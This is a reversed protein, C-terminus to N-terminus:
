ENRLVVAPEVAVARLAPVSCAALAIALLVTTVSAFTMVDGSEVGFLLSSLLRAVLLAAVLGIGVGAAVVIMGQGVILGVVRRPRGGLALRISIDRAHQQVYYAMVGYIGVLSLLLAVAAFGAVLISLSRPQELARGVLDDITAVDSFPLAPDLDHVTQRVAPLVTAPDGTTRVVLYRFRAVGEDVPTVGRGPIPRYVTGDDPSDLGAYKVTKVVGVVTTWPCSTCGGEKLRKGVASSNPFFRRAWAEDVVISELSPRNGDENDFLRGQLLPLRMLGFYEPSVGVWPTVPQSQGPPTPFEELDFNNFDDVNGPPLGDSYAVAAVGPLAEVRTQLQDWYAIVRGPEAYSSKPVIISGALLHRTDIGIDVRALQFLSALLLGAVILLPTTIAFQSGVLIRRLRRVSVTGTSSRGWARLAEDVSGGTGHLAPVLGFLLTSALTLGLLLWGTAGDLAIEQSRPIYESGADRLLGIGAWALALGVFSAGVALLASEALLYRVIRGRSAGLATRVGLEQKRSTIRAVLLNSANTCAILWVLAVAALALAGVTQLGGATWTKLDMMGWTARQDQYSSKWLDFLRKNIGRLEAVAAARDAADTSGRRLRGLATIFFPGKRPPPPWQAAVFFHQGREFPGNTPPLIGILAYDVGDLRVPRGLADARGGLRQQWFHRTVIVTPPSGPRSDAATFDRGLSPTIGLLGFYSWSVIRGNLREAVNGDSFAMARSQYGAVREFRTQQAELAQYDAVSFPFQYPPADTYIRVLRDPDAYPLPRLLAANVAAFIVTTAGIGLGVTGVITLTLLWARRLGRWGIRLDQAVEDLVLRRHMVQEKALDQERCYARTAKLDGFQRIAERRAADPSLGRATLEETRLDIHVSLEEDIESSVLDAGRRLHWFPRRRDDRFSM